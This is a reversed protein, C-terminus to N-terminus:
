PAVTASIKRRRLIEDRLETFKKRTESRVLAPGIVPPLWMEPIAEGHYIIITEDVGEDLTTTSRFQKFTGRVLTTIIRKPPTLENDKVSDFSISLPGFTVKGIQEVQAHSDNLSIVRSTTLGSIFKSMHDFDTLVSWVDEIPARVSLRSDVVMVEGRAEVQVVLSADDQALASFPLLLLQAAFFLLRYGLSFEVSM